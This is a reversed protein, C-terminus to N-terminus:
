DDKLKELSFAAPNALIAAETFWLQLRLLNQSRVSPPQPNVPPLTKLQVELRWGETVTIVPQSDALTRPSGGIFWLPRGKASSNNVALVVTDGLLRASIGLSAPFSIFLKIRTRKRPCCLPPPLAPDEQVFLGPQDELVRQLCGSVCGKM